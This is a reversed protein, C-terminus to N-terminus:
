QSWRKISRRRRRKSGRRRSSKRRRTKRKNSQRRKRGKRSHRTRKGVGRDPPPLISNLLTLNSQLDKTIGDKTLRDPRPAFEQNRLRDLYYNIDNRQVTLMARKDHEAMEFENAIISKIALNLNSAQELDNPEDDDENDSM